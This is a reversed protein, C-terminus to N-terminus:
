WQYMIGGTELTVVYDCFMGESSINVSMSKIVGYGIGDIYVHSYYHLHPIFNARFSATRHGYLYRIAIERKFVDIDNANGNIDFAMPYLIYHIIPFGIYDPQNSDNVIEWRTLVESIISKVDNYVPRIIALATAFPRKSEIKISGVIKAKYTENSNEYAYQNSYFVCRVLSPNSFMPKPKYVLKINNTNDANLAYNRYLTWGSYNSVINDVYSYFDRGMIMTYESEQSLETTIPLPINDEAFFLDSEIIGIKKSLIYKLARSHSGHMSLNEPLIVSNEKLRRLWDEEFSVRMTEIKNTVDIGKEKFNDIPTVGSFILRNNMYIDISIVNSNLMQEYQSLWLPHNRDIFFEVICTNSDNYHGRNITISRIFTTDFEGYSSSYYVSQTSPQKNIVLGDFGKLIYKNSKTSTIVFLTRGGSTSNVETLKKDENLKFMKLQYYINHYNDYANGTNDFNILYNKMNRQVIIAFDSKYWIDNPNPSIPLFFDVAFSFDNEFVLPFGNFGVTSDDQAYITADISTVKEFKSIKYITYTGGKSFTVQQYEKDDLKFASSIAAKVADMFEAFMNNTASFIVYLDDKYLFVCCTIAGVGDSSSFAITNFNLYRIFKHSYTGDSKPTSQIVGIHGKSLVVFSYYSNGYLRSNLKGISIISIVHPPVNSANTLPLISSINFFYGLGYSKLYENQMEEPSLPFPQHIVLRPNFFDPYINNGLVEAEENTIKLHPYTSLLKNNSGSFYYQPNYQAGDSGKLQYIYFDTENNKDIRYKNKIKFVAEKKNTGIIINPLNGDHVFSKSIIDLPNNTLSFGICNDFYTTYKTKYLTAEKLLEYAFTDADVNVYSVANSTAANALQPVNYVAYYGTNFLHRRQTNLFVRINNAKYIHQFM